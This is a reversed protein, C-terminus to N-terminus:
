TILGLNVLAAHIGAASVAVGTQKAVPATNYFGVDGVVTLATGVTVSWDEYQIAADTGFDSGAFYLTKDASDAYILNIYDLNTKTYGRVFFDSAGTAAGALAKQNFLHWSDIDNAAVEDIGLTLGTKAYQTTKTNSIMLAGVGDDTADIDIQDAFVKDWRTGTLGLSDQSDTAPRVDGGVTVGGGFTADGAQWTDGDEDVIWRSVDGGGVRARVGFVNGDATVDAVANAGDHEAVYVEALSRGSASKTTDATGGYSDIRFPNSDAADEALSQIVLGGTLGSNKLFTAYTDTETTSTLGHGVDSSKLALIEDDAGGQNITLGLTVNANATDGIYATGGSTLSDVTVGAMTVDTGGTGFIADITDLDTNLKTGWSGSSAGVEPKTLSLNTTTTDAM